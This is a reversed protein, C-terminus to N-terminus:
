TRYSGVLQDLETALKTLQRTIGVAQETGAATEQAIQVIQHVNQNITESVTTQEEAASAIQNNMDNITAVSQQIESLAQEVKGAEQVTHQSQDKIQSIAQVADRAGQQLRGIMQNIEDTSSATRAALTRVEDAVVAFGRGQEGARAAEIAANLALLNTQDAIGRIVELVGGINQSETGVAAIVQVGKEVQQELGNIVLIAGDLIKASAEVQQNAAHAAQAAGSASNAVDQATTAMEHMATAVQDSEAHQTQVGQETNHMLKALEDGSSRLLTVSDRVNTVLTTVKGAFANFADALAGLEHGQSNDLRRSLDADGSAIDQMAAVAGSLPKTISGAFFVGFAAMIAVLVIALLVSQVLGAQVEAATKQQLSQINQELDDIYFGTALVWDTGALLVAKALKPAPTTSGPRPWNYQVYDGGKTAAAIYEQVLFRGEPSKSQLFNKGEREPNDASVVQVGAKDYVFFYNKGNDYRLSRLINKKQEPDTTVSTATAALELFADLQARREQYLSEKLQTAGQAAVTNNHSISLLTLVLAVLLVPVIALWLIRQRISLHKLM